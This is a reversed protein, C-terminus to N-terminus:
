FLIGDKQLEKKIAAEIDKAAITKAKNKIAKVCCYRMVNIIAGGSLVYKEAVAQLDVDKAPQMNDPFASKWLLYREEAAPVPFHVITQFRRLFAKDIHDKLNSALVVIGNHEEIRQLLYAVEQNAFRDNSSKIDTRKGFLADAEDFFLIWRKNEAMDFIKALNKETEGVYRSVVLSLDIRYVDRQTVKGILTATLTKGTGPPGYFLAKYGPKLRKATGQLKLVADSHQVWDIIEEIGDRSTAALVVDQWALPTTILKAPFDHNYDMNKLAGSIFYELYEASVQITSNFISPNKDSNVLNIVRNKLLYKDPDFLKLFAFRLELDSGALLFLATEVTPIFTGSSNEPGGFESFRKDYTTNRAYFMDLLEPKFYPALSLILLIRDAVQLDNSIIFDAYTGNESGTSPPPIEELSKLEPQDEFYLRIRLDILRRLWELELTLFASNKNINQKLGTAM